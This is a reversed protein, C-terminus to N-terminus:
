KWGSGGVPDERGVVRGRGGGIKKQIKVTVQSRRECGSQGRVPDERGGARVGVVGM